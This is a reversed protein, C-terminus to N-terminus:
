SDCTIQRRGQANVKGCYCSSLPDPTWMCGEPYVVDGVRCGPTGIPRPRCRVEYTEAPKCAVLLALGLAISIGKM